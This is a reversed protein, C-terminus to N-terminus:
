RSEENGTLASPIRSATEATKPLGARTVEKKGVVALIAAVIGWLVAVVLAAWGIPMFVDLLFVLALSAFTLMLNAAVGAGGLMGAGKGVNKASTTAEAKALSIEQRVLMTLDGTVNSLLEGVSPGSPDTPDIGTQSNGQPSAHQAGSAGSAATM